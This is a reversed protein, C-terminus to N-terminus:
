CPFSPRTATRGARTACRSCAFDIRAPSFYHFERTDQDWGNKASNGTGQKQDAPVQATAGITGALLAVAAATSMWRMRM